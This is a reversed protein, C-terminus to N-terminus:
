LYQRNVGRILGLSVFHLNISQNIVCSPTCMLARKHSNFGIYHVLNSYLSSLSKNSALLGKQVQQMVRQHSNSLGSVISAMFCKLLSSLLAVVYEEAIAQALSNCCISYQAYTGFHCDLSVYLLLM